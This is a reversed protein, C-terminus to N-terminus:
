GVIGSLLGESTNSDTIAGPVSSGSGWISPAIKNLGPIGTVASAVDGVVSGVTGMVNSFTDWGSSDHGHKTGEQFLSSILTDLQSLQMNADTSAITQNVKANFDGAALAHSSSDPSIGSAAENSLINGYQDGAAQLISANTAQVAANTSTGLTALTNALQTGVGSGYVDQFDGVFSNDGTTPNVGSSISVGTNVAGFPTNVNSAPGVATTPVTASPSTAGIAGGTVINSMPRLAAGSAQNPNQPAMPLTAM